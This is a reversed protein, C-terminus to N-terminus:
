LSTAIKSEISFGTFKISFALIEWVGSKFSTKRTFKFSKSVIFIVISKLSFFRFSNALIVAGKIFKLSLLISPKAKEIFVSLSSKLKLKPKLFMVAPGKFTGLVIIVPACFSM